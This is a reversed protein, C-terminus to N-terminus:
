GIPTDMSRETQIRGREFDYIASCLKVDFWEYFANLSRDEPWEHKYGNWCLLEYEFIKLYYPELIKHSLENDPIYVFEILYIHKENIRNELDEQSEENYYAAWEKFPEKPIVHLASRNTVEKM